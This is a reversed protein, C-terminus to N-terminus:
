GILCANRKVSHDAFPEATRFVKDQCIGSMGVSLFVFHRLYWGWGSGGVRSCPYLFQHLASNLFYYKKGADIDSMSEDIFKAGEENKRNVFVLGFPCKM